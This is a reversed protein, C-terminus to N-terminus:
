YDGDSYLLIAFSISPIWFLKRNEISSWLNQIGPVPNWDRDTPSSKPDLRLHSEPNWLGPSRTGSAFNEVMESVVLLIERIGSDRLQPSM